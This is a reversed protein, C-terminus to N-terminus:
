WTKSLKEPFTQMELIIIFYYISPIFQLCKKQSVKSDIINWIGM